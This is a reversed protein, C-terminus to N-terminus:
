CGAGQCVGNSGASGNGSISDTGNGIVIFGNSPSGSSPPASPQTAHPTLLTTTSSSPAAHRAHRRAHRRHRVVTVVSETPIVTVTRVQSSSPQAAQPYLPQAALSQLLPLLLVYGAVMAAALLGSMAYARRNGLSFALRVADQTM